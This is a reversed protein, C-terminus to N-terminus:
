PPGSVLAREAAQRGFRLADEMSSYNWGGYRGTSIVRHEALFPEIVALAPAHEHDYLVYAHALHRPRVFAVDSASEIVGMEVLGSLVRPIVQELDPRRDV